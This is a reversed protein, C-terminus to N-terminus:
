HEIFLLENVVSAMVNSLLEALFLTFGIVEACIDNNAIFQMSKEFEEHCRRLLLLTLVSVQETISVIM